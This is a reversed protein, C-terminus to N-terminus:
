NIQREMEYYIWELYNTYEQKELGSILTLFDRVMTENESSASDKLVADFCRSFCAANSLEFIRNGSTWLNAVERREDNNSVTPLIDGKLLSGIELRIGESEAAPLQSPNDLKIRFRVGNFEKEIWGSKVDDNEPRALNTGQVKRFVALDGKRWFPIVDKVGKARLANFEFFPMSYELQEPELIELCLGLSACFSIWEVRENIANSKTNIPPLSIVVIGNLSVAKAAVWMFQKFHPAYWPPDMVVCFHETLGNPNLEFLDAEIIRFKEKDTLVRNLGQVIPKNREILSTVYPIDKQIATAFLTPMGLFLLKDKPLLFTQIKNMLKNLSATSNRWEFDLPHPTKLFDFYGMYKQLYLSSENEFLQLPGNLTVQKVVWMDDLCIVLGDSELASLIDITDNPYLGKVNNSIYEFTRPQQCIRLVSQKLYDRNM